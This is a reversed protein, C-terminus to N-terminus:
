PEVPLPDIRYLEEAMAADVEAAPADFLVRGSRLGVVRDFHSLAYEFAHVSVVLTRGLEVALDRLLNMVERGRAPDLSSIPEDALIAVPDQVLVRALAVRQQQGGSLRNTREYLKESIGVRALAAEVRDVERPSLLSWAARALSWEGLRGANVNHVVRLSDVLDFQQHIAGIRRQVSRLQRPRLGSLEQGLAEVRGESPQVTGNLVGLLTSKGAGSPGVVAVREGARIDLDVGELAVLAGFRVAVGRLAFVTGDGNM